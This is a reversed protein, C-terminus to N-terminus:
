TSRDAQRAARAGLDVGVHEVSLARDGLARRIKEEERRYLEPWEEDYDVLEILANHPEREGITVADLYEEREM